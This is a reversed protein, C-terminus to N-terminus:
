ATREAHLGVRNGETDVILAIFGPDGIDTRPLVVKGGAREARALCADLDPADLYVVAGDASPKFDAHKVLAGGVGKGPAYPFIAMQMPGMTEARLSAGLTTEYFKRARALDQVPLEFWNIANKM